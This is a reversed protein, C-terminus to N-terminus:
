PQWARLGYLVNSSGCSGLDMSGMIPASPASTWGQATPDFHQPADNIVVLFSTAMTSAALVMLITPLAIRRKPPSREVMEAKFAVM